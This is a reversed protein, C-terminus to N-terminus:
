AKMLAEFDEKEITEKELLVKVIAELKNKHTTIVSGATKLAKDIMLAIEDDIREAVKESYDRQEHLERGLFIMDGRDGFTRPPMTESMGYDTIMRRALGTARKLDNHAGTSVEGFMEKEAAHGGLMVALEDVFESKRQMKKDEQPITMTYGAARGRSIISVKHVPDAHPLMSAVLAHGGEHYATLKKEEESLLHSKREPGMSVKEISELLENQTIITKNRRATLIAAENLVNALDAGSFGPTRKAVEQLDAGEALPKNKKHVDLIAQREKVDPKDLVVQRDFRGPRLLAPDLVDPRNTAAIVIVNTETDFGDMEVLIQNLTQEREDHSGGMGSGRQRGVADIEDIFVICPANKKAKKFLDRVRSAGVGVFMEVFESGSISFFPVDAEGAVAKALMTKGTGPAGMLLVGRPIKAGLALFKKPHKLFEVVEQLEEKAEKAGAVGKF